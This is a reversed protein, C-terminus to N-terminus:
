FRRYLGSTAKEAIEATRTAEEQLVENVLPKKGYKHEFDRRSLLMQQVKLFNAREAKYVPVVMSVWGVIDDWSRPDLDMKLRLERSPTSLYATTKQPGVKIVIHTSYALCASLSLSWENEGDSDLTRCHEVELDFVQLILTKADEVAERIEGVLLPGKGDTWSKPKVPPDDTLIDAIDEALDADADQESEDPFMVAAINRDEEQMQLERWDPRDLITSV